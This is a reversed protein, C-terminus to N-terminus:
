VSCAVYIVSFERYENIMMNKSSNKSSEILKQRIKSTWLETGYDSSEMNDQAAPRVNSNYTGVTDEGSNWV